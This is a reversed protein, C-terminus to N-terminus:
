EKVELPNIDLWNLLINELPKDKDYVWMGQYYYDDEGEVWEPGRMQRFEIEIAEDEGYDHFYLELVYWNDGKQTPLLLIYGYMENGEKDSDVFSDEAIIEGNMIQLNQLLREEFEADESRSVVVAALHGMRNMHNKALTRSAFKKGDLPDTFIRRSRVIPEYKQNIVKNFLNYDFYGKFRLANYLEIPSM